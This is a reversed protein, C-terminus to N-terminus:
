VLNMQRERALEHEHQAQREWDLIVMATELALSGVTTELGRALSRLLESSVDKQGREIESIYGLAMPAAVAVERLTKGNRIRTSRVVYGLADRYQTAM